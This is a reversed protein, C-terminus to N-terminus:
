CLLSARLVQQKGSSCLSSRDKHPTKKMYLERIFHVLSQIDELSTMAGLSIRLVGTPRGELVDHDAGCRLGAVYHRRLDTHAWRLSCATGGPNCVSGSCLHINRTAAVKEIETKPIWDGRINLMHCAKTGNFQRLTSFVDYAEKALWGTHASISAMSGHLRKHTDLAADLAMINHFPLTGDELGEHISTQKKVHWKEGSAIVMDVTGGGFVKRGHLAHAGSKRVILAGLDPCGFIKYFSLAVFGPAIENVHLPATSVFSAADLLSSFDGEGEGAAACIQRCWRLPPRRGNLNTQAPFAFLTPTSSPEVYPKSIWDEMDGDSLCQYGIKAVERMGLVRIRTWM